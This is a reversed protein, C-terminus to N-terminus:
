QILWQLYSAFVVNKGCLSGYLWYFSNCFFFTFSENIFILLSVPTNPDIDMNSYMMELIRKAFSVSDPITYGSRLVATDFMVQAIDHAVQDEENIKFIFM